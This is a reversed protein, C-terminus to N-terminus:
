RAAGRCIWSGIIALESAPLPSSSKPMLTGSCMNTGLMKQMLYSEAARGPQVLLRGDSCQVTSVGVLEDYSRDLTLDLRARPTAGVHCGANSCSRELIPAVDAAFSVVPGTCTCSGLVCAQDAGCSVGCGGCNGADSSTDVCAGGCATTGTGCACSGADCTAGPGCAIGCSGCHTASSETDVCAGSCRTLAGCNAVSACGDPTCLEGAGCQVGCGQCNAPDTTLDVCADGCRTTGEACRCEGLVCAAGDPCALGCAGCSAASSTLDVCAGDCRTLGTACQCQGAVCSGLEPCQVGCAGCNTEDDSTSVCDPGGCRECTQQTDLLSEIWARVCEQQANSLRAGAPPMPAGCGAPLTHAIKALLLSDQPRGPAVLLRGECSSAVQDILLSAFDSRTLDLAAAPNVAGHCRSGACHPVFVDVRLSEASPTCAPQSLAGADARARADGASGGDIVTARFDQQPLAPLAEVTGVSCAALALLLCRVSWESAVRVARGACAGNGHENM